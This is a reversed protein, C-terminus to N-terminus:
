CKIQGSEIMAKITRKFVTLDDIRQVTCPLQDWLAIGRYLPSNTVKSKDTFAYKFKVKNRSRLEIKPRQISISDKDIISKKYMFILIHEARRHYLTTLGYTKLLVEYDEKVEFDSSNEIKRVARKHM